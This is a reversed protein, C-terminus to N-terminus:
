VGYRANQLIKPVCVAVAIVVAENNSDHSKSLSSESIVPIASRVAMLWTNQLDLLNKTIAKYDHERLTVIAIFMTTFYIQPNTCRVRM